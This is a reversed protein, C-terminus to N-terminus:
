YAAIVDVGSGGLVDSCSNNKEYGSGGANLKIPDYTALSREDRIIASQDSRKLCQYLYRGNGEAGGANTYFGTPPAADSDEELHRINKGSGVYYRKALTTDILITADKDNINELTTGLVIDSYDYSVRYHYANNDSVTSPDKVVRDMYKLCILFHNVAVFGPLMTATNLQTTTPNTLGTFALTGGNVLPNCTVLDAAINFNSNASGAEAANYGLYFTKNPYIKFDAKFLDLGSQVLNIDAKRRADRGKRQVPLIGVTVLTILIGIISIVILLEILTFGAGNKSWGRTLRRISTARGSSLVNPQTFDTGRQIFKPIIM